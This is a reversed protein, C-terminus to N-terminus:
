EEGGFFNDRAYTPALQEVGPVAPNSKHWERSEAIKNSWQRDPWAIMDILMPRARGAVLLATTAPLRRLEDASLVPKERVQESWSKAEIGEYNGSFTIEERNGLLDMLNRLDSSDSSGGLLIKRTASEWITREGNEGWGERAQSRSQFVPIAQVGEGSGAAMVQPLGQWPHINAIEDLILACPPDLRGGVSQQAVKHAAAVIDDLILSSFVGASGGTSTRLESVIYLTGSEKLFTEPDFPVQGPLIDFTDRVSPVDFASLSSSVGFWQNDRTRPDSDLVAQLMPGWGLKSKLPDNLIDLARYASAPSKTWEHLEALPVSGVAAAHLLYQLVDAAKGVWEKNSTGEGFNASVLVMARKKALAADECGRVPSWRLTSQRGTVGEPDFLYVPGKESRIKITAEMNDGRSSTTVVAGPAEVIASTLILFGKGSRPPGLVLVADEMSVWVDREQSTGLMWAVQSPSPSTLTPRVQRGRKIATKAGMEREVEKAAAIEKRQLIQKRLYAPSAQYELRKLGVLVGLVVVVILLAMFSVYVPGKSLTCGDTGQGLYAIDSIGFFWNMIQWTGTFGDCVAPGVLNVFFLHVYIMVALALGVYLMRDKASARRWM